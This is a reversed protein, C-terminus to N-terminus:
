DKLIMGFQTLASALVPRKYEWAGDVLERPTGWRVRSFERTDTDLRFTVDPAVRVLFFYQEQGDYDIHSATKAVFRARVDDPWKYRIPEPLSAVLEFQGNALGIEESLERRAAQEPTEGEDIGGQVTQVAGPMDARECLLVRGNGDTVIVAANPRFISM